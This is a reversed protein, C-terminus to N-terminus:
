RVRERVIVELRDGEAFDDFGQLSLGCEFGERVERVDETFRRLSAITSRSLEAEGRLVRVTANRRVIGKLVM